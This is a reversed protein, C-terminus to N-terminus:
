VPVLSLLPNTYRYPQLSLSYTFLGLVSRSVSFCVPLPLSLFPLYFLSFRLSLVNSMLSSTLFCPILVFVFSFFSTPPPPSLTFFPLLGFLAFSLSFLSTLSVFTFLSFFFHYSSLFFSLHLCSLHSSLSSSFYLFTLPSLPWPLSFIPYPITYLSAAIMIENSGEVEGFFTIQVRYIVEKGCNFM